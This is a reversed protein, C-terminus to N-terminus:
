SRCGRCGLSEIPIQPAARAPERGDGSDVWGAADVQRHTFAVFERGARRLNPPKSGTGNSRRGTATTSTATWSSWSTPRRGTPTSSFGDVLVGMEPIPLGHERLLDVFLRELESAAGAALTPDYALLAAAAYMRRLRQEDVFPANDLMTRAPSTVAIGDVVALDADTPARM